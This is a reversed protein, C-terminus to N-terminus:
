RLRSQIEAPVEDLKGNWARQLVRVYAVIAWRDDVPVQFRYAPMTRRGRTIVHFIEGDVFAVIRADHLNGAQWGSKAPVVGRGAGTRDHCPACYVNFKQEGRALLERTIPLPNRAVYLGDAQIGTARGPDAVYDEQSVTRPVPARSGRGDAFFASEAEYKVKDQKKMDPFLWLPRERTPFNNCGASAVSAAVLALAPWVRRTALIRMM